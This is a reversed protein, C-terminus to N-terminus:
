EATLIRELDDLLLGAALPGSGYWHDGVEVVQGAQVAPLRQWLPNAALLERANEADDGELQYLVVTDADAEGVQEYSVRLPSSELVDQSPPRAVGALNLVTGAFYSRGYLRLQEPDARAVTVTGARSLSPALADARADLEALVDVMQSRRGVADAFVLSAERWDGSDDHPAVVVPALEGLAALDLDPNETSALVLDPQLQAVREVSLPFASGVDATADSRELYDNVEEPSPAGVPVVGVATLADLAYGDLVVVRQPEVPVEVDGNAAAVTRTAAQEAAPAVDSGSCATLLTVTSLALALVPRRTM